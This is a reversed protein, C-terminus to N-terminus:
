FQEFYWYKIIFWYYVIVSAGTSHHRNCLKYAGTTYNWTETWFLNNSNIRKYSHILCYFSPQKIFSVLDVLCDSSGWGHVGQAICCFLCVEVWLTDEPLQVCLLGESLKDAQKNVHNKHSSKCIRKRCFLFYQHNQHQSQLSIQFLVKMNRKLCLSFLPSIEKTPRSFLTIPNSIKLKSIISIAATLTTWNEYCFCVFGLFKFM